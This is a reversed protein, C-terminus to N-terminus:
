RARGVLWAAVKVCLALEWVLRLLCWGAMQRGGRGLGLQVMQYRFDQYISRIRLDRPKKIETNVFGKYVRFDLVSIM